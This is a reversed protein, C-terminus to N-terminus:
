QGEIARTMLAHLQGTRTGPRWRMGLANFHRKFTDPAFELSPDRGKMQAIWDAKTGPLSDFVVRVGRSCLVGVISEAAMQIKAQNYVVSNKRPPDIGDFVAQRQIPTLVPAINWVPVRKCARYLGHDMFLSFLSRADSERVLYGGPFQMASNYPDDSRSAALQDRFALHEVPHPHRGRQYQLATLVADHQADCYADPNCLMNAITPADFIGGTVIPLARLPLYIEGNALQLTLSNSPMKSPKASAVELVRAWGTRGNADQKVGQTNM